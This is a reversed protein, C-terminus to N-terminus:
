ADRTNLASALARPHRSSVLWYPAPDAPDTIEVRVSQRLYPRLLLYARADAEPGSVRRTRDADLQEAMAKHWGREAQQWYTLAEGRAQWRRWLARAQAVAAEDNGDFLYLCRTFQPPPELEAGDVLVLVTAANPYDARDTLFVPQDETRFDYKYQDLGLGEILENKPM